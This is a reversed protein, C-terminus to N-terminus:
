DEAWRNKKERAVLVENESHVCCRRNKNYRNYDEIRHKYSSRTGNSTMAHYFGLHDVFNYQTLYIRDMGDSAGFGEEVSRVYAILARNVCRPNWEDLTGVFSDWREDLDNPAKDLIFKKGRYISHAYPICHIFNECLVAELYGEASGDCYIAELPPAACEPLEFNMTKISNSRKWTSIDAGNNIAAVKGYSGHYGRAIFCILRYNEDLELHSFMSIVDSVDFYSAGCEKIIGFQRDWDIRADIYDYCRDYHEDLPYNKLIEYSDQM